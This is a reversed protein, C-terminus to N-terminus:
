NQFFYTVGEILTKFLTIRQTTLQVIPISFLYYIRIDM